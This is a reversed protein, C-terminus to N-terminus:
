GISGARALRRRMWLGALGALATAALIAWLVREDASGLVQAWTPSDPATLLLM